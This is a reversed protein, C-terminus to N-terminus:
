RADHFSSVNMLFRIDGIYGEETSIIEELVRRRMISRNTVAKDLVLSNEVYSNDESYRGAIKSAHSDRDTRGNRSSRGTRRSRGTISFSALSISASKVATVFGMSSGSSSKKHSSKMQSQVESDPFGHNFGSDDSPGSITRRRLRSNRQLSTMWRDFPHTALFKSPDELDELLFREKTQTHEPSLNDAGFSLGLATVNDVTNWTQASDTAISASCDAGLDINEFNEAINVTTDLRHGFPSPTQKGQSGKRTAQMSSNHSEPTLFPMNVASLQDSVCRQTDM